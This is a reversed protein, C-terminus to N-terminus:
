EYQKTEHNWKKRNKYNLTQCLGLLSFDVSPGNSFGHANWYFGFETLLNSYFLSQYRLTKNKGINISKEYLQKENEFLEFPEFLVNHLPWFSFEFGCGLLKFEFSFYLLSIAVQFSIINNKYLWWDKIKEIMRKM